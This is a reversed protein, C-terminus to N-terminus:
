TEFPTGEVLDLRCSIGRLDVVLYVAEVLSVGSIWAGELKLGLSRFSVILLFDISLFPGLWDFLTLLFSFSVRFLCLPLFGPVM